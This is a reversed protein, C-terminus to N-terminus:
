LLQTQNDVAKRDCHDYCWDNVRPVYKETTVIWKRKVYEKFELRDQEDLPLVSVRIMRKCKPCRAVMVTVPTLSDSM